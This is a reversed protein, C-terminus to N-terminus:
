LRRSEELRAVIERYLQRYASAAKGRTDLRTVPIGQSIAERVRVSEPISTKFLLHGYLDDLKAWTEQAFSQREQVNNLVIGLPRIGANHSSRLKEISAILDALGKLAFWSVDAPIIAFDGALLAGRTFQGMAPPTDMVVVDHADGADLWSGIAELHDSADHNEHKSLSGDTGVLDLHDAVTLPRPCGGEFLLAINNEPPLDSRLFCSTLNAQPDLDLALVSNGAAAFMTALHFALTTKGVGGKQNTMVIRM